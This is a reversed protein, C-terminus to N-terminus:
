NENRDAKNISKRKVVVVIVVGIIIASVSVAGCIWYTLKVLDVPERNVLHYYEDITAIPADSLAQIIEEASQRRPNEVRVGYDFQVYFDDIKSYGMWDYFRDEWTANREKEWSHYLYIKEGLLRPSNTLYGGDVMLSDINSSPTFVYYHILHRDEIFFSICFHSNHSYYNIQDPLRDWIMPIELVDLFGLMELVYKNREELPDGHSEHVVEAIEEVLIALNEAERDLELLLPIDEPSMQLIYPPDGQSRANAPVCLSCVAMVILFFWVIYKKM